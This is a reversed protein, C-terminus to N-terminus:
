HMEIFAAIVNMWLMPFNAVISLLCNIYCTNLETVNARTM